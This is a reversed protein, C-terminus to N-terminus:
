RRFLLVLLLGIALAVWLIWGRSEKSEQTGATAQSQQRVHSLSPKEPPPSQPAATRAGPVRQYHPTFPKGAAAVPQAPPPAPRPPPAVGLPPEPVTPYYPAFPKGAVAISKELVPRPPLAARKTTPPAKCKHPTDGEFAVYKGHPMQRLNIWRGCHQCKRNYNAM